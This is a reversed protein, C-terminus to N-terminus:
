GYKTEKLQKAIMQVGEEFAKFRFDPCLKNLYSVDFHKHKIPSQRQTPSISVADGIESVIKEATELFSHSAGTAINLVGEGVREIVRLIIEAADEIHIHDRKEEGGGFLIINENKEALRFFRNPGYGNHPDGIGYLLSLRLIAVPTEKLVSKLMMERALHMVGHLSTPSTPTTENVLPEDESYVADSSIYVLHKIPSSTVARCVTYAMDINQKLHFFDRNPAITSIFVLIDTPRLINELIGM